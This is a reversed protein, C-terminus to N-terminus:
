RKPQPQGVASQDTAEPQAPGGRSDLQRLAEEMTECTSIRVRRRFHFISMINLGIDKQPDPIVRVVAAAGKKDCLDM